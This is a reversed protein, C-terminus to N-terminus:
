RQIIQIIKSIKLLEDPMSGELKALIDFYLYSIDTETSVRRIISISNKVDYSINSHCSECLTLLEENDYEWIMSKNNYALHHVNLTENEEGCSKCMFKDRQM